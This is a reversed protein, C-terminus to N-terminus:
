IAPQTRRVAIGYFGENFIVVEVGEVQMSGIEDVVILKYYDMM